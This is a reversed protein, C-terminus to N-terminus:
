LMGIKSMMLRIQNYDEDEAEAFGTYSPEISALVRSGRADDPRLALLAEKIAQAMGPELGHVCINFEPIELSFKVFRLGQERYKHATSEMLGGADFEGKLVAQAVDDHHGLYNYYSLDKLEIGEELLMARPVIHSSTSNVDGFAFSRGKIDKLEKVPGDRRSIIVSHHFPKGDRLAKVLVEAGYSRHALIYTSPTMYCLNTIGEGLEKVAAEFSSAVRLEFNMGLAEQLYQMLPSFRRYMEAPAELPVVGFRVVEMKAEEYLRFREMEANVLEADRLLEKVTRNIRFAIDRSEKPIDKIKEISSWIQGSGVKQENIAKLIQQSKDSVVEVAQAIQRSSHAQQETNLKVQSSADRMRETAEMILSIGRSQESTAKAMQQVMTRMREVSASVLRASRAQEATTREISRAVQTSDQASQLIKKISVDAEKTLDMGEEVAKLGARMAQAAAKVEAQVGEILSAIEQTSFGTREALSKIEDAVVSFGKGHEGAQAALIAANLALLTTQDTIEDIVTLIKGIEESRDGLKKIAHATEEVSTKIRQMGEKTKEIAAVGMTSAEETVRESLRASDKAREEVEKISSIIEEVATLTEDSVEALERAGGAVEKLTASLEHISSSTAEV